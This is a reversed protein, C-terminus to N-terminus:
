WVLLGLGMTGGYFRTGKPVMTKYIKELDIKPSTVMTNTSNNPMDDDAMINGDDDLEKEWELDESIM